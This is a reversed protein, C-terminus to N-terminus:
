NTIGMRDIVTSTPVKYADNGFTNLGEPPVLGNIGHVDDWKPVNEVLLANDDVRKSIMNIRGNMDADTEARKM